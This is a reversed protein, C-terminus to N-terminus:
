VMSVLNKDMAAVAAAYDAIDTIRQRSDNRLNWPRTILFCNTGAATLADYNELKDEVFLDTPVVTKDACFYLEDYPIGHFELWMKTATHSREPTTGFQRDTIIVVTHGLAKISKVAEIANPRTPGQFIIGADVGNNCVRKFEEGDM